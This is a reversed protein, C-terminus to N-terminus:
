AGEGPPRVGRDHLRGRASPAPVLSGGGRPLVGGPLRKGRLLWRGTVGRDAAVMAHVQIARMTLHVSARVIPRGLMSTM